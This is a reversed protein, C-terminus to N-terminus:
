APPRAVLQYPASAADAPTPIAEGGLSEFRYGAAILRELGPWGVERHFEVVFTPRQEALVRAAGPLAVAEGGEIDLKVLDLREGPGFADDLRLAPVSVAKRATPAADERAAFERSITWEMDGGTRGPYLDITATAGDTVAAHRVEVNARGANLEASRQVYRANQPSAEFAVVRGDRGARAAMLFAFFGIHAGVDACVAGPEVLRGVAAAVEPEYGESYVGAYGAPVVLRLGELEPPAIEVDGGGRGLWRGVTQRLTM